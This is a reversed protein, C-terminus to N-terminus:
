RKRWQNLAVLLERKLTSSALLETLAPILLFSQSGVQHPTVPAMDLLPNFLEGVDSGIVIVKNPLVKFKQTVVGRAASISQDIGSTSLMPWELQHYRVGAVNGGMVKALDDCFRRPFEKSDGLSLCLGVSEYHLLALRFRPIDTAVSAVKETPPATQQQSPPQSSPQQPRKNQSPSLQSPDPQSANNQVSTVRAQSKTAAVEPIQDIGPIPPRGNRAPTTPFTMTSRLSWVEIGMAKLYEAKSLM